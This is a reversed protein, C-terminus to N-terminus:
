VHGEKLINKIYKQFARMSQSKNFIKSSILDVEATTLKTLDFITIYNTLAKDLDSENYGHVISEIKKRTNRQTKFKIM